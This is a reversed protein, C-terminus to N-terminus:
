GTRWGTKPREETVPSTALVANIPRSSVNAVSRALATPRVYTHGNLVKMERPEIARAHSEDSVGLTNLRSRHIVRSPARSRPLLAENSTM